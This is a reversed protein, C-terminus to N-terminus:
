GARQGGAQGMRGCDRERPDMGKHTSCWRIEIEVSPERGRLAAIAKRAQLAHAPSTMRWGRSRPKHMPSSVSETASRRKATEAAVVLARAIVACEADYAEQFYGWTPREGAWSRGKKWVVTYGVARNEDRSGDAWLVLGPQSDAWRAEQKAWEADAISISAGLETPGDEPLYIEEVRGSYESFHVMRQVMATNGGPLTKAQDGKSLTYKAM